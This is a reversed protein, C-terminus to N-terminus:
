ARDGRPATIVGRHGTASEHHEALVVAGAQTASPERWGCGDTTCVALRTRGADAIHALAAMRRRMDALQEAHEPGLDAWRSLARM